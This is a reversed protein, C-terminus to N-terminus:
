APRAPPPTQPPQLTEGLDQFFKALAACHTVDVDISTSVRLGRDDTIAFSVRALEPHDQVPGNGYVLKAM